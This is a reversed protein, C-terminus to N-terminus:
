CYISHIMLAALFEIMEEASGADIFTYGLPQPADIILIRVSTDNDV